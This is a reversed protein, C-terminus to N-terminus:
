EENGLGHKTVAELTMKGYDEKRTSCQFRMIIEQDGIHFVYPESMCNIKSIDIKVFNKGEQIVSKM